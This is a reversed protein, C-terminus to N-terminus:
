LYIYKKNVLYCIIDELTVAKAHEAIPTDSFPMTTIHRIIQNNETKYVVWGQITLKDEGPAPIYKTHEENWCVVYGDAAFVVGSIKKAFAYAINENHELSTGATDCAMILLCKHEKYNLQNVRKVDTLSIDVILSEKGTAALVDASGHSSIEVCESDPLTNWAREFSEYSNVRKVVACDAEYIRKLDNIDNNVMIDTGAYDEAIIAVKKLFKTKNGDSSETFVTWNNECYSFLNTFGIVSIEDNNEFSLKELKNPNITRGTSPDYYRSQLYYLNTEKDFYYGRYRMPNIDVMYGSSAVINGWADYTYSAVTNGDLDTIGIIDGQINKIYIYDTSKTGNNYRFGEVKNSNGYWFYLSENGSQQYILKDENWFYSYKQTKYGSNINKEIRLGNANYTYDVRLPGKIYSKLNSGNVWELSAGLYNTPNGLNDYTINQGNYSTLKDKWNADAYSYIKNDVSQINGSSDYTINKNNEKVIQNLEDYEYTAVATEEENGAQFYIGIINGNNDYTYRTTEPSNSGVTTTVSQIQDTTYGGNDTYEYEKLVVVADGNKTEEKTIRGFVDTYTTKQINGFTTTASTTLDTKTQTNDIYAYNTKYEAGNIKETQKLDSNSYSYLLETEVSNWIQTEGVYSLSVSSNSSDYTKLVNGLEDNYFLISVVTNGHSDKSYINELLGESDYKYEIKNGNSYNISNVSRTNDTKYSFSVLINNGVSISELDGFATYTYQYTVSGNTLSSIKGKSNYNCEIDYPTKDKTQSIKVLTNVDYAYEVTNGNGDTSSIKNATYKDHVNFTNVGVSNTTRTLISSRNNKTIDKTGIATKMVQGDRTEEYYETLFYCNDYQKIYHLEDIYVRPSDCTKIFLYKLDSIFDTANEISEFYITHWAGTPAAPLYESYDTEENGFHEKRLSVKIKKNSKYWFRIGERGTTELQGLSIGYSLHNTGNNDTYTYIDKNATIGWSNENYSTNAVKSGHTLYPIDSNGTYDDFNNITSDFIYEDVVPYNNNQQETVDAVFYSNDRYVISDALVTHVEDIYVTSTTIKVHIYKFSSVKRVNNEIDRYLLTKWAGEPAAPLTKIYDYTGGKGYTASRLSVTFSADSKYWFRIGSQTTSNLSNSPISIGGSVVKNGNSDTYEYKDKNQTVAFSHGLYATAGVRLVGGYKDYLVTGQTLYSCGTVQTECSNILSVFKYGDEIEYDEESEETETTDETEEEEDQVSLAGSMVEVGDVYMFGQQCNYEIRLKYSDYEASIEGIPAIVKYFQSNGIGDSDLCFDISKECLTTISSTTVGLVSIKGTASPLMGTTSIWASVSLDKQSSTIDLTQEAYVTQNETGELQLVCTDLSGRSASNTSYTANSSTTWADSSSDTFDANKVSNYEYATKHKELQVADIYVKGSANYLGLELTASSDNESVEFTVYIRTWDSYDGEIGTAKKTVSNATARISLGDYISADEGLAITGDTVTRVYASFTYTGKSLNEITKSITSTSVSTNNIETWKKGFYAFNETDTKTKVSANSSLTWSDSQTEFSSNDILNVVPITVETNSTITGKEDANQNISYGKENSVSSLHGNKDFYYREEYKVSDGDMESYDTRFPYRTIMIRAGQIWNIDDFGYETVTRANNENIVLKYNEPQIVAKLSYDSIPNDYYTYQSVTGDVSVETLDGNTDYTYTATYDDNYACTLLSPNNQDYCYYYNNGEKDTLKSIRKNENFEINIVTSSDSEFLIETLHKENQTPTNIGDQAFIYAKGDPIVIKYQNLDTQNYLKYDYGHEDCYYTNGDEDTATNTFYIVDGVDNNWVFKYTSNDPFYSVSEFYSPKWYYDGTSGINYNFDTTYTMGIDISGLSTEQSFDTRKVAISDVLDNIYVTGASGMDYEHYSYKTNIGTQTIYTVCLTPLLLFNTTDEYTYLAMEEYINSTKSVIAFCSKNNYIYNQQLNKTINWTAVPENDLTAIDTAHNNNVKYEIDSWSFNATVNDGMYYIPLEATLNNMSNLSLTANTIYSAAGFGFNKHLKAVIASKYTGDESSNTLPDLQIAADDNRYEVTPDVVVPYERNNDQLWDKDATLIVTLKNDNQKSIELTLADSVAGNKDTMIPATITYVTKDKSNKLEITKNDTQVATLKKYRYEIEFENATTKNNLVLNEKINAGNIIYEVDVNDYINKYLTKSVVNELATYKKDGKLNQTEQEEIQAASNNAGVFGWSVNYNDSAIEVTKGKKYKKSLTINEKTNKTAYEESDQSKLTTDIEEWEGEDNEFHVPSNYIAAQIKGDSLLFHKENETRMSEIEGVIHAPTTTFGNITEKEALSIIPTSAFMIAVVLFLSFLRFTTSNKM